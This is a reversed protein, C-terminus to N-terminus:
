NLIFSGEYIDGSGTIYVVEYVGQSSSIPTLIQSVADSDFSAHWVEGTFINTVSLVVQGLNETVSTVIASLVGSYVSEVPLPFVTREWHKDIQKELPIIKQQNEDANMDFAFLPLLLALSLIILKRM